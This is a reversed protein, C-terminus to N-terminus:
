PLYIKSTASINGIIISSTDNKDRDVGYIIKLDDVSVLHVVDGATPSQMVGREFRNGVQEGVLVAKLWRKGQILSPETKALEFIAEPIATTGVETVIGYLQAYGLPIKVFSGIQGIRYVVGDIVPM